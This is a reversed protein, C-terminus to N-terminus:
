LNTIFNGIADVDDYHFEKRAEKIALIIIGM